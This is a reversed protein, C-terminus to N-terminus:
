SANSKSPMKRVIYAKVSKLLEIFKQLITPINM